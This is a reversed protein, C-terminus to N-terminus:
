TRQARSTFGFDQGVGTETEREKGDVGIQLTFARSASAKWCVLLVQNKNIQGMDGEAKKLRLDCDSIISLCWDDFDVKGWSLFLLHLFCSYFCVDGDVLTGELVWWLFPVLSRSLYKCTLGESSSHLFTEMVRDKGKKKTLGTREESM